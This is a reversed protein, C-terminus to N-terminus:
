GGPEYTYLRKVDQVSYCADYVEDRVLKGTFIYHENLGIDLILHKEAPIFPIKVNNIFFYDESIDTITADVFTVQEGAYDVCVRVPNYRFLKAQIPHVSNDVISDIEEQIAVEAATQEAKESRYTMGEIVIPFVLAFFGGIILGALFYSTLTSEIINKDQESVRCLVGKIRSM